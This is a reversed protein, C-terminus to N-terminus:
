RCEKGKKKKEGEKARIDTRTQKTYRSLKCVILSSCVCVCVNVKTEGNAM